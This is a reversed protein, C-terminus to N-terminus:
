DAEPPTQSSWGVVWRRSSDRRLRLVWDRGALGQVGDGARQFPEFVRARDKEKIGPGRDIIRLTIHNAHEGADVRVIKGPPSHVIANDILNALARELLSADANVLALSEPIDVDVGRGGGTVTAVAKPVVEELGIPRFVTQVAGAQLRSMDLLNGVLTTLRDNEDEITALFEDVQEQSWSIDRQRLSTVSAKISSLPTRLDHSVSALIASRLDGVRAVESAKSMERGLRRSRAAVALQAAFARLM